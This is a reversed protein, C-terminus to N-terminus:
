AVNSLWTLIQEWVPKKDDNKFGLLLKIFKFIFIALLVVYLVFVGVLFEDFYEKSVLYVGAYLLVCVATFGLFLKAQRLLFDSM